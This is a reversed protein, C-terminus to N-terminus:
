SGSLSFAIRVTLPEALKEKKNRDSETNDTSRSGTRRLKFEVTPVPREEVNHTVKSDESVSSRKTKKLSPIGGSFLGGIGGTKVGYAAIRNIIKDASANARSYHYPCFHYLFLIIVVKVIPVNAKNSTM